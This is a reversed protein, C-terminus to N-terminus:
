TTIAIKHDNAVGTTELGVITMEAAVSDLLIVKDLCAIDYTVTTACTAACTRVQMKLSTEHPLSEVRSLSM